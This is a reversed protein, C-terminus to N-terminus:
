EDLDRAIKLAELWSSAQKLKNRIDARDDKLIVNIKKLPSVANQQIEYIELLSEEIKGDEVQIRM